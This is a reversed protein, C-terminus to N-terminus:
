KKGFHFHKHKSEVEPQVPVHQTTGLVLDKEWEKKFPEGHRKLVRAIMPSADSNYDFPDPIWPVFFVHSQAKGFSTMIDVHEHEPASLCLYYMSPVNSKALAKALDMGEGPKCGFTVIQVDSTLFTDRDFESSRISGCDAIVTDFEPETFDSLTRKDDYLAVDRYRFLGQESNTYEWHKLDAMGHLWGTQNDEWVGVKKNFTQLFVASQIALTTTGVRKSCGSVSILRPRDTDSPEEQEEEPDGDAPVESTGSPSNSDASHSSSGSSSDESISDENNLAKWAQEKANGLASSTIFNHFGRRHLYGIVGSSVPAGIDMIVLLAGTEEQVAELADGIDQPIDTMAEINVVITDCGDHSMCADSLSDAHYLNQGSSQITEGLREAAEEIYYQHEYDGLFLIM